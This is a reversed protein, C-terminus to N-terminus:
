SEGMSFIMRPMTHEEGLSEAQQKGRFGLVDYGYRKTLIRVKWWVWEEQELEITWDVYSQLSARCSLLM